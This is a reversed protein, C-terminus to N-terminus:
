LADYEMRESGRFIWTYSLGLFQPLWALILLAALVRTRLDYGFLTTLGIAVVCMTAATVVRVALVSGLMEGAREPRIAVERTVYAGHGWDVFVYAFTAITTLLYLLGFDSAGLTRAIAASLLMTLVTTTVQGMGLHMINRM